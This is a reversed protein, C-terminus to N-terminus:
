IILGEARLIGAVTGVSAGGRLHRDLSKGQHVFQMHRPEIGHERLRDATDAQEPTLGSQLWARMEQPTFMSRARAWGLGLRNAHEDDSVQPYDRLIRGYESLAARERRVALVDLGLAKALRVEDPHSFTQEATQLQHNNRSPRSRQGGVARGQPVRARSRSAGPGLAERLSQAASPEITSSASKAFEGLEKLKALVVKSEVGLEKAIEHVRPKGFRSPPSPYTM